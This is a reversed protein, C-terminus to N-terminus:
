LIIIYSFSGSANGADSNTFVVQGASKTYRTPVSTTYGVTSESLLVISNTTIRTDVVTCQGAILVENGVIQNTVAREESRDNVDGVWVYEETLEMKGNTDISQVKVESSDYYEVINTSGDTTTGFLKLLRKGLKTLSSM